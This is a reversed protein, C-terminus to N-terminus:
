AQAARWLQRDYTAFTLPENLVSQWSLAAALHVADYGRLDREWALQDARGIIAESLRLRVLDPWHARLVRLARSAEPRTLAGMRWARALAASVEAGTVLATGATTPSALLGIVEASGAETLYRKVLMSSDGYVIM